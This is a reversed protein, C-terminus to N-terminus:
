GIENNSIIWETVSEIRICKCNFTCISKNQNYERSRGLKVLKTTPWFENEEIVENFKLLVDNNYRIFISRVLKLLKVTPWFENEEVVENFNLLIDNNYWIFISTVPRVVNEVLGFVRVFILDIPNMLIDHTILILNISQVLKVANSILSDEKVATM